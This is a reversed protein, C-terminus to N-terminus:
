AAQVGFLEGRKTKSITGKPYRSALEQGRKFIVSVKPFDVIDCIIYNMKETKFLFKNEDFNRGTGIMGSPMFKCGGAQTFNKADFKIDEDVRNVHDYGKCGKIHKLEPFWAALQPELFHSAPRGDKLIAIVESVPLTGFSITGTLDFNYIKDFEIKHM